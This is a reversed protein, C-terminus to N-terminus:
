AVSNEMGKEQKINHLLFVDDGSVKEDHLNGSYKQYAEKSFSLNAGNCMVPNGAAATGATVGQLSLFELEQFRQFFGRGGKLEVPCIIMGPKNGAYFSTITNIWGIGVRCDADTTIVLEGQCAEVGTKIANKKGSGSNNIIKLNKIGTFCSAIKFTTDTSNDDIIIVEFLDPNYNQAAIDSLLPPLNKEENRCAVIVSVFVDSSEPPIYPRIKRLSFYIKLLLYLYPILLILALWQM